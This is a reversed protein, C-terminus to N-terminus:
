TEHYDGISLDFAVRVRLVKEQDNTRRYIVQSM